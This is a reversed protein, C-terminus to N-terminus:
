QTCGLLSDLAFMSVMVLKCKNTKQKRGKVPNVAHMGFPFGPCAYFGYCAVAQQNKTEKM